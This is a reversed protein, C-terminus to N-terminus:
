WFDFAVLGLAALETGVGNSVEMDVKGLHAGLLALELHEDRDVSSLLECAKSYAQALFSM